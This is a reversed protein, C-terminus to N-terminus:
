YRRIQSAALIVSPDLTTQGGGANFLTLLPSSAATSGGGTADNLAMFREILKGVEASDQFKEIKYKAKLTAVQRALKARLGEAFAKGDIVKPDKAAGTGDSM